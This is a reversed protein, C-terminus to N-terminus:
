FVCGIDIEVQLDSKSNDQLIALRRSCSNFFLFASDFAVLGSFSISAEIGKSFPRLSM